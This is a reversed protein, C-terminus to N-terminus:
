LPLELNYKEFALRVKEPDIEFTTLRGGTTRLAM